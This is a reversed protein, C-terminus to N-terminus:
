TLDRERWFGPLPTTQDGCAYRRLREFDDPSTMEIVDFVAESGVARLAAEGESGPRPLHSSILVYPRGALDKRSARNVGFVHARGLAKWVTDTRLLGGRTTTYAGSVDFYWHGGSEDRGVLNVVVGLGRLRTNKAVVDFGAREIVEEAFQQAAKGEMTARAQFDDTEAVAPRAARRPPSADATVPASPPDITVAKVRDQAIEAYSPDLDYGVYRRRTKAAAVLSTGSGMFPDLVLDDEYTYLHILREPLEVPFPAPHGVRKAQEPQMEWVDLTAAMFEDTNATNKHPLPPECRERDKVPIARDFRGKSAIIVRETLDRLVPNAASRFSGWACSGAAGDGKQWIVEGRLLMRLDDQLIGIVDAALSRYPKRGLNAVNIAMRGGPELVRLCEELVGRLMSLYEGYTSPVGERDLEEEYQKGAFYPPSTVVLAVSNDPLAHPDRRIDCVRFPETIDFSGYVDTSRDILPPTFRDYFGSADHNERRSV